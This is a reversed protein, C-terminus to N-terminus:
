HLSEGKCQGNIIRTGGMPTTKVFWCGVWMGKTWMCVKLFLIQYVCVRFHYGQCPMHDRNLERYSCQVVDNHRINVKGLPLPIVMLVYFIYDYM